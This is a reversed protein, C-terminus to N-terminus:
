RSAFLFSPTSQGCVEGDRGELALLAYEQLHISYSDCKQRKGVYFTTHSLFSSIFYSILTNNSRVTDIMASLLFFASHTLAHARVKGYFKCFQKSHAFSAQVAPYRENKYSKFAKELDKVQTTPLVNIWNALAVADHFAM